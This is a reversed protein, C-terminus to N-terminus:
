LWTREHYNPHADNQVSIPFPPYFHPMSKFTGVGPALATFWLGDTPTGSPPTVPDTPNPNPPVSPTGPMDMVAWAGLPHDGDAQIQWVEHRAVTLTCSVYGTAGDAELVRVQVVVSAPAWLAPIRVVCTALADNPTLTVTPGSVQSWDYDPTPDPGNYAAALTVVSHSPVPGSPSVATANAATSFLEARLVRARLVGVVDQSFLEARIVRGRTSESAAQSFLEARLV